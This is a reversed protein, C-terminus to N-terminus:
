GEESWLDHKEAEVVKGEESWIDKRSPLTLLPSRRKFQIHRLPHPTHTRTTCALAPVPFPQYPPPSTSHFDLRQLIYLICYTMLRRAIHLM